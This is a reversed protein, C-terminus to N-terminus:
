RSKKQKKYKESIKKLFAHKKETTVPNQTIPDIGLFYQVSALTMPLPIFVKIDGVSLGLERLIQNNYESEKEDQSPYGISIGAKFSIKKKYEGARKVLFTIDKFISESGDYGMLLRTEELFSAAEIEINGDNRNTLFDKYIIKDSVLLKMDPKGGFFNNRVNPFKDFGESIKIIEESRSKINRCVDPLTCSIRECEACLKKNGTYTSYQNFYPLGFIRLTKNYEKSKTFGIVEKRISENSRSSIFRGSTFIDQSDYVDNLCGRHTIVVEDIFRNIPIEERYKPHPRKKFGTNFIEDTEEETLPEQSKHIVLFRDLVKQTLINSNHPNQNRHLALHHDTLLLNNKEIGEHTPLRSCNKVDSTDKVIYATGNLKRIESIKQKSKILEAIKVLNFEPNGFVVMDAKSDFLIPKRLKDSWFDYHTSIRCVAEAGCLVIPTDKYLEKLKNCYKIVARDPRHTRLGGPVYPDTSRYKKFATYNMAM